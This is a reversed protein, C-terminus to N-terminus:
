AHQHSMEKWIDKSQLTEIEIYIVQIFDSALQHKIMKKYYKSKSSLNNRHLKTNKLVVKILSASFATYFIKKNNTFAKNLASYYIAKRSSKRSRTFDKFLINMLNLVSKNKANAIDRVNKNIIINEATINEATNSINHTILHEKENRLSSSISSFLYERQQNNKITAEEATLALILNKEDIIIIADIFIHQFDEEDIINSLEEIKIFKTRFIDIADSNILFSEKILQALDIQNFKYFNNEDFIVDRMKIIKHQNFVWINFINISEYDVFFDIHAKVRMKKKRSIHKDTSYAKAEFQVLHTLNFKKEIIVEFSIKWEHKKMLTKNIIYKVIRIIWSWLYILLNVKIKMIKAKTLLVDKKREIHENQTFTNSASSEFIINKENIYNNWQTELSRKEDSRVFMVKDNYKTEIINIIKILIEIVKSKHAYTFMLYFDYEFCTVHSIWQNKNMTANLQILDYTICFFSKDSTKAKASFRFVIKHVKTLACMECKNIKFVAHTVDKIDIIKM